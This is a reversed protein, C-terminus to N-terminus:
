GYDLRIDEQITKALVHLAAAEKQIAAVSQALDTLDINDNGSGLAFLPRKGHYRELNSTAERYGKVTLGRSWLLFSLHSVLTERYHDELKDGLAASVWRYFDLLRPYYFPMNPAKYKNIETTIVVDEELSVTRAAAFEEFIKRWVIALSAAEAAISEVYEVVKEKREKKRRLLLALVDLINVPNVSVVM